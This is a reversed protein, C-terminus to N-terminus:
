DCNAKHLTGSQSGFAKMLMVTSMERVRKASALTKRVKVPSQRHAGVKLVRGENRQRKAGGGGCGRALDM